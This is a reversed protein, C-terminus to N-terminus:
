SEEYFDVWLNRGRWAGYRTRVGAFVEYRRHRGDPSWSAEKVNLLVARRHDGHRRLYARVARTMPSVYHEREEATFDSAPKDDLAIRRVNVPEGNVVYHEM